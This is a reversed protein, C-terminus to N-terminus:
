DFSSLTEAGHSLSERPDSPEDHEYVYWEVDARQVAELARELELEGEGLEACAMTETDIDAFHAHSIRDAHEGVVSAPDVGGAQAWGLDIEFGIDTRALLEEMGTRDGLDVFEQDHNHYQLTFGDSTLDDAVTTLREAVSAVADKSEFHEPDLWPIILTECSLRDYLATMESYSEELDELSVHAAASTLDNRELSNVVEKVDTEDNRVRHAFEVGDFSTKGVLDLIDPLPSDIDRLSYLQIATQVM